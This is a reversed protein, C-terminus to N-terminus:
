GLSRDLRVARRPTSTAGVTCRYSPLSSTIWPLPPVLDCGNADAGEFDPERCEVHLRGKFRVERGEGKLM